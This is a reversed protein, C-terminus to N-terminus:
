APKETRKLRRSILYVPIGSLMLGSGVLSEFTYASFTYYFLLLCVGMFLAPTLPYGWVRYGRRKFEPFKFRLIYISAAALAFFFWVLVGTFFLLKDFTGALILVASWAANLGLARVPTGFVPHTKGIYKFVENDQGLAYTVRGGTLITANIGALSSIIVIVELIKKGSAGSLIFLADSAILPADKLKEVPILYIYLANMVLYLATVSVVGWILALPITKSADKTEGAVFTNEHWGGYTWLIPILALFFLGLMGEGTQPMPTIYFNSVDGKGSSFGFIIIGALAALKPITLMNQLKTGYHLGFINACSSSFVLIIALPKVLYPSLSFFSCIYEACIFSVAAISGTRVVLLESWGYLFALWRGYAKKLYIYNGGTQPWSSSLEAYCAAGLLSVVGGALWALMVFPASPLYQAVLAPVRFIGNGVTIAIVIAVSDWRGLFKKSSKSSASSM